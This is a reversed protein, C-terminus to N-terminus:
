PLPRTPRVLAGCHCLAWPPGRLSLNVPASPAETTGWRTQPQCPSEELTWGGPCKRTELVLQSDESQGEALELVCQQGRPTGHSSGACM